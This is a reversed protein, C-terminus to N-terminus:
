TSATARPPAALSDASSSASEGSLHRAFSIAREAALVAGLRRRLTDRLRDPEGLRAAARLLAEDGNPRQELRKARPLREHDDEVVDVPALRREEIEDLVEGVPRAVGRDQEDAERPGLQEVSRGPQPPPLSLAVSASSSGSESSSHARSISFRTPAGSSASSTSALIASAASPLGSNTSSISEISISSPSSTRSVAAPGRRAVDAAIRTGGVIWASSAARSSRSSSSSRATISRAATAPLTKWSPATASSAGSSTRARRRLAREAVSTRLSSIRGSRGLRPSRM